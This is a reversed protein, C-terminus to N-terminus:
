NSPLMDVHVRVGQAGLTYVRIKNVLAYLCMCFVSSPMQLYKSLTNIIKFARDHLFVQKIHRSSLITKM